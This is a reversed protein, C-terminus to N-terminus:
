APPRSSMAPPRGAPRRPAQWKAFSALGVALAHLSHSRSPTPISSPTFHAISANASPARTSCLWGAAAAVKKRKSLWRSLESRSDDIQVLEQEGAEVCIRQGSEGLCGCCRCLGILSPTQLRGPAQWLSVRCSPTWPSSPRDTGRRLGPQRVPSGWGRLQRGAEVGGGGVRSGVRGGGGAAARAGSGSSGRPVGIIGCGM